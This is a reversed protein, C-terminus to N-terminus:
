FLLFWHFSGWNWKFCLNRIINSWNLCHLIRVSGSVACNMMCWYTWYNVLTFNGSWSLVVKLLVEHFVQSIFISSYLIDVSLNGIVFYGFWYVGVLCNYLFWIFFERSKLAPISSSIIRIFNHILWLLELYLVYIPSLELM